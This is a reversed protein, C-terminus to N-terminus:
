RKMRSEIMGRPTGRDPAAVSTPAQRRRSPMRRFGLLADVYRPYADDILDCVTDLFPEFAVSKRFRHPRWLEQFNTLHDRICEWVALPTWRVHARAAIDRLEEDTVCRRITLAECMRDAETEDTLSELNM